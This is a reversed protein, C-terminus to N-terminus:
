DANADSRTVTMGPALLLAVGMGKVTLQVGAFNVDMTPESDFQRESVLLAKVRDEAWQNEM